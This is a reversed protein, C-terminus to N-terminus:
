LNCVGLRMYQVVAKHSLIRHLIGSSGIGAKQASELYPVVTDTRLLAEEEVAQANLHHLYKGV